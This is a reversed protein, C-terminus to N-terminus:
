CWDHLGYGHSEFEMVLEDAPFWTELPIHGDWPDPLTTAIWPEEDMFEQYGEAEVFWPRFPLPETLRVGSLEPIRSFAREPHLTVEVESTAFPLLHEAFDGLKKLKKLEGVKTGLGPTWLEAPVEGEMVFLRFRLERRKGVPEAEIRLARGEVKFVLEPFLEVRGQPQGGEFVLVSPLFTQSLEEWDRRRLMEEAAHQLNDTTFAGEALAVELTELLRGRQSGVWNEGFLTGAHDIVCQRDVIYFSKDWRTADFGGM